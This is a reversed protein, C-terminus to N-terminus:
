SRSTPTLARHLIARTFRYRARTAASRAGIPSMAPSSKSSRSRALGKISNGSNVIVAIGDYAVITPKLNLGKGSAAGVGGTRGAPQVNRDPGHWRYHRSEPPRAKPRLTLRPIPISPRSLRPWNRFSSAGLTDSGKIVLRDAQAGLSSPSTRPNYKTYENEYQTPNRYNKQHVSRAMEYVFGTM